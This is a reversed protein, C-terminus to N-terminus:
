LCCAAQMFMLSACQYSVVHLLVSFFTSIFTCQVENCASRVEGTRHCLVACPGPLAHRLSSLRNHRGLPKYFEDNLLEWLMSGNITMIALAIVWAAATMFPGACFAAGGMVESSSTLIILQLGRWLLTLCLIALTSFRHSSSHLTEPLSGAQLGLHVALM